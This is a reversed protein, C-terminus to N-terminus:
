LWMYMYLNLSFHRSVCSNHAIVDIESATAINKSTVTCEAVMEAEDQQQLLDLIEEGHKRVLIWPPKLMTTIDELIKIQVDSALTTLNDNPLIAETTFSSPSYMDCYTNFKWSQLAKEVAALHGAWQRKCRFATGDQLPCKGNVNASKSPSPHPTLPESTDPTAPCEAM